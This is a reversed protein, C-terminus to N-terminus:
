VGDQILESFVFNHGQHTMTKNDSGTTEKDKHREDEIDGQHAVPRKRYNQIKIDQIKLTM